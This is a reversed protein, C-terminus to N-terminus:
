GHTFVELEAGLDNLAALLRGSTAVSQLEVSIGEDASHHDWTLLVEGSRGLVYLDASISDLRTSRSCLYQALAARESTAFELAEANEVGTILGLGAVSGYRTLLVWTDDAELVRTMLEVCYERSDTDGLHIVITRRPGSRYSLEKGVRATDAAVDIEARALMAHLRTATVPEM